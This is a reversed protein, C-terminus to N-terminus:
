SVSHTSIKNIIDIMRKNVDSKIRLRYKIRPDGRRVHKRKQDTDAQHLIQKLGLNENELTSIKHKLEKLELNRMEDITVYDYKERMEFSSDAREDFEFKLLNSIREIDVEGKFLKRIIENDTVVKLSKENLNDSLSLYVIRSLKELIDSFNKIEYIDPVENNVLIKYVQQEEIKSNDILRPDSM